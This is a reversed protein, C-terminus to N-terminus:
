KQLAKWLCDEADDMVQDTVELRGIAQQKVINVFAGFVIAIVVDPDLARLAGSAQASRVFTRVFEMVDDEVALSAQDLYPAHFHMELFHFAKPSDLQFARMSNWLHRFQERPPSDEPFDLAMATLFDKKWTRYLVNVLAEKSPFYRYITGAAVKAKSAIDPVPTGEFGHKAFLALAANLIACRKAEMKDKLLATAVLHDGANM